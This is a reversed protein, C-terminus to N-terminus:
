PIEVGDGVSNWVLPPRFRNRWLTSSIPFPSIWWLLIIITAM